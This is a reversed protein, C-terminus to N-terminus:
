PRPSSASWWARYPGATLLCPGWDWGYHYQAKRVYVRSPDGNWVALRGHRAERAQGLPLAPAFRLLLQNPGERLLGGQRPSLDVEQPLFMNDCQLIPAGNLHVTACTDLGAFALSLRPAELLERSVQFDCRYVVERQNLHQVQLEDRDWFPDPIRGHRVLDLHAVGPM